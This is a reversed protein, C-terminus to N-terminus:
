WRNIWLRLAPHDLRSNAGHIFPMCQGAAIIGAALGKLIEGASAVETIRFAFRAAFLIFLALHCDVRVHRFFHRQQQFEVRDAHLVSQLDVAIGRGLQNGSCLPKVGFSQNILRVTSKEGRQSSFGRLM